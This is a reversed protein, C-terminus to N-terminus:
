VSQAEQKAAIGICHDSSRHNYPRGETTARTRLVKALGCVEISRRVGIGALLMIADNDAQCHM